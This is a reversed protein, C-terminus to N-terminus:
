DARLEDFGRFTREGRSGLARLDRYFFYQYDDEAAQSDSISYADACEDLFQQRSEYRYRRKDFISVDGWDVAVPVLPHQIGSVLLARARRVGSERASFCRHLGDVLGRIREGRFQGKDEVYEEVVPPAIVQIADSKYRLEVCGPMDWLGLCHQTMLADHLELVEGLRRRIVYLALPKLGDIEVLQSRVNAVQYPRIAKDGTLPCGRLRAELQGWGHFAVLEVLHFCQDALRGVSLQRLRPTCIESEYTVGSSECESEIIAELRDYAKLARHCGAETSADLVARKASLRINAAVCEDWMWSALRPGDQAYWPVGHEQWAKISDVMQDKGAHEIADAERLVALEPEPGCLPAAQERAAPAGGRSKSPFAYTTDDHHAILSLVSEARDPEGEFGQSQALIERGVRVGSDLHEVCDPCWRADRNAFGIDHLLAGATLVEIDMGTEGRYEPEELLERAAREVELAHGVGDAENRGAFSRTLAEVLRGRWQM